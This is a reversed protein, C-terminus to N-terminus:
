KWHGSGFRGGHAATPITSGRWHREARAAVRAAAREEPVLAESTASGSAAGGGGIEGVVIAGVDDGEGGDGEGEGGWRQTSLRGAASVASALAAGVLLRRRCNPTNKLSEPLMGDIVKDITSASPLGSRQTRYGQESYQTNM